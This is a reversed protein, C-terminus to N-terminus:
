SVVFCRRSPRRIALLYERDGNSRSLASKLINTETIQERVNNSLSKEEGPKNNMSALEEELKKILMVNDSRREELEEKQQLVEELQVLRKTHYM